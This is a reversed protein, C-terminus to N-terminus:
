FERLHNNLFDEIGSAVNFMTGNELEFRDSSDWYWVEGAYAGSTGLCLMNGGQDSGISIFGKPLRDLFEVYWYNLDHSKNERIGWFFHMASAEGPWHPIEFGTQSPRGGNWRLLFRKYDDPLSVGHQAEFDAIVESKIPGCGESLTVPMSLVM